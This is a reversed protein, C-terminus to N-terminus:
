NEQTMTFNDIDSFCNEGKNPVEILHMQREFNLPCIINLHASNDWTTWNALTFVNLIKNIKYDDKLHTM